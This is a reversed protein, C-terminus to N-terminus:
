CETAFQSRSSSHETSGEPTFDGADTMMSTGCVFEGPHAIAYAVSQVVVASGWAVPVSAGAFFGVLTSDRLPCTHWVLVAPVAMMGILVFVRGYASRSTLELICGAVILLVCGSVLSTAIRQQMSSV